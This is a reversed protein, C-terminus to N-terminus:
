KELKVGKKCIKFGFDPFFFLEISVVPALFDRKM